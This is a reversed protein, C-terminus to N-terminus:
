LVKKYAKWGVKINYMDMLFNMKEKWLRYEKKRKDIKDEEFELKEIQDRVEAANIYQKQFLSLDDDNIDLILKSKAM